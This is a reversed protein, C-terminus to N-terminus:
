KPKQKLLEEFKNILVDIDNKPARTNILKYRNLKEIATEISIINNNVLEGIIWVMGHVILGKRTSVKRLSGDSSLITCSNRIAFDVVSCDAFSLGSNELVHVQIDEYTGSNDVLIRKNSILRTINELQESDTIEEVVHITTYVSYDLKLFDEM